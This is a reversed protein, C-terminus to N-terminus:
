VGYGINSNFIEQNRGYFTITVGLPETWPWLAAVTILKYKWFLAPRHTVCFTKPNYSWQMCVANMTDVDVCHPSFTHGLSNDGTATIEDRTLSTERGGTILVARQIHPLSYMSLPSACAHADFYTVLGIAM